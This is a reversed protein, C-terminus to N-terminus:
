QNPMTSYVEKYITYMMKRMKKTCPINHADKHQGALINVQLGAKGVYEDAQHTIRM